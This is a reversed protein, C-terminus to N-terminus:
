TFLLAAAAARTPTSASTTRTGAVVSVAASTDSTRDIAASSCPGASPM